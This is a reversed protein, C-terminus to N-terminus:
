TAAGPCDVARHGQRITKCAGMGHQECDPDTSDEAVLNCAEQPCPCADELWHGSFSRGIHFEERDNPRM